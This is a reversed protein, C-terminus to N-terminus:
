AAKLQKRKTIKLESILSEAFKNLCRYNRIRKLRREIELLSSAVWRFLQDSNQWRTVRRLYRSLMSNVSEIINTTGLSHRLKGAYGLRHLTLTEEFGEMLSNYASNNIRKLEEAIELLKAKASRYEDENYARQLKRRYEEQQEEKLYSIVNERKHWYCRQHVAYKGFVERIAKIIGKSGDSVCLIGGGYRLGRSLLNKLMQKVSRSNETASQIFDLIIKEGESTIGMCMIIQEKYLSKGDIILGIIEKNSIDRSRFEKLAKSSVEVFRRSISSQSLGFSEACQRSVREYDNQSIGLILKRMMEEEPAPISKLHRYSAFEVNKRRRNDMIRPVEIPVKCDGIRVSGPNFGWRSYDKTAGTTSRSYREGCYEEAGTDLYSNIVLRMVEVTHSLLDLKVMDPQSLFWELSQRRIKRDKHYM